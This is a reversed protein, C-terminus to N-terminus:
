VPLFECDVKILVFAFEFLCSGVLFRRSCFGYGVYGCRGGAADFIIRSFFWMYFGPREADEGVATGALNLASCVGFCCAM